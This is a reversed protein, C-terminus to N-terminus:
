STGRIDNYIVTVWHPLEPLSFLPLGLRRNIRRRQEAIVGWVITLIVAAVVSFWFALSMYTAVVVLMLVFNLSATSFTPKHEKHFLTPLLVLAFLWQVSGLVYDQWM